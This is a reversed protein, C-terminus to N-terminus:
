STQMVTNFLDHLMVSPIHVQLVLQQLLMTQARNDIDCFFAGDIWLAHYSTWSGHQYTITACIIAFSKQYGAKL